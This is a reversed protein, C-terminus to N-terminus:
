RRAFLRLGPGMVSSEGYHATLDRYSARTRELGRLTEWAGTDEVCEGYASVRAATETAGYGVGNCFPGGAPWLAATWVPVGLHDLDSIGFEMVEGEPLATQYADAVQGINGTDSM